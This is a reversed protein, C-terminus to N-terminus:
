MHKSRRAWRTAAWPSSVACREGGGVPGRPSTALIGTSTSTTAVCHTGCVHGFMWGPM